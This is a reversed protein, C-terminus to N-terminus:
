SNDASIEKPIPKELMGSFSFVLIFLGSLIAFWLTCLRILFAGAAAPASGTLPATLLFLAGDTVGLGGPSVVGLLTSVAYIVALLGLAGVGDSWQHFGDIQGALGYEFLIWFGAGEALWALVSLFGGLLVVRFKLLTRAEQYFRALFGALRELLPVGALAAFLRLAVAPLLLVLCGVLVLGSLSLLIAEQKGSLFGRDVLLLGAGVIFLLGILDMLREMFVVPTTRALGIGKEQRILWAKLLEGVKGPTIVMILGAGFFRASEGTALPIKLWRIYIQWRLFRLFYNTLTLGIVPVLVPWHFQLFVRGLKSWNASFGLVLYTAAGLILALYLSLKLKM